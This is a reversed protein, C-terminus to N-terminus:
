RERWTSAPWCFKGAPCLLLLCSQDNVVNVLIHKHKLTMAVTPMHHPASFIFGTESCQRREHGLWALVWRLLLYWHLLLNKFCTHLHQNHMYAQQKLESLSFKSSATFIAFVTVCTSLFMHVSVHSSKVHCCTYAGHGAMNILCPTNRWSPQSASCLSSRCCASSARQNAASRYRLHRSTSIIPPESVPGDYVLIPLFWYLILSVSDNVPNLASCDLM